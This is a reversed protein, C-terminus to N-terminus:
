GPVNQVPSGHRASVGFRLGGTRQRTQQLRGGLHGFQEDLEGACLAMHQPDDFEQRVFMGDVDARGENANSATPIDRALVTSTIVTSSGNNVSFTGVNPAAAPSAASYDFSFLLHYAAGTTLGSFTYTAVDGASLFLFQQGASGPLASGM